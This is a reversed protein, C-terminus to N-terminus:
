SKLTDRIRPSKRTLAPDTDFKGKRKKTKESSKGKKETKAKVGSPGAEPSYTAFGISDKFVKSMDM